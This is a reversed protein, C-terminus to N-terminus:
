LPNAFWSRYKERKAATRDLHRTSLMSLVEAAIARTDPPEYVVPQPTARRRKPPPEEEQESESPPPIKVKKKPTKKPTAEETKKKGLSGKPRGKPKAKPKPAPECNEQIEQTEETKIEAIPIEVIESDAM